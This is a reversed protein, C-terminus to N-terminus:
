DGRVLAAVDWAKISGSMGATLLTHGAPHWAVCMLQRELRLSRVLRGSDMEMLHFNPKTRDWTAVALYRWDNSFAVASVRHTAIGELTTRPKSLQGESLDWVLVSGDEAGTALLRGNRSFAIATVPGPHPNAVEAVAEFEFSEVTKIRYLVLIHKWPVSASEDRFAAALRTRGANMALAETRMGERPPALTASIMGNQGRSMRGGWEESFHNVFPGRYTFEV